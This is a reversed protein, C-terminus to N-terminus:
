GFRVLDVVHCRTTLITKRRCWTLHEHHVTEEVARKECEAHVHYTKQLAVLFVSHVRHNEYKGPHCFADEVLKAHGALHLRM